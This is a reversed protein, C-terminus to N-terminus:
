MVLFVDSGFLTFSLFMFFVFIMLFKQLNSETADEPNGSNPGGSIGGPGARNSGFIDDWTFNLTFLAPFLGLGMVFGGNSNGFLPNGGGIGSNYNQNPQPESRRAGPRNPIQEDPQAQGKRRPDESNEKTFIPILKDVAVGSKCVPCVLTERPQQLWEYICKWCYLHGCQTVVPELASDLCINCEFVNSQNTSGTAETKQHPPAPTAQPMTPKKPLPEKVEENVNRIQPGDGGGSNRLFDISSQGGANVQGSPQTPQNTPIPEASM